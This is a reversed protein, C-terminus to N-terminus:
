KVYHLRAVSFIIAIETGHDKKSEVTIKAGLAEALIKVLPLGLGVSEVKESNKNEITGYKSFALEIDKESMGFGQDQVILYLEHNNVKATMKIVTNEPSYKISNSLLNNFIQVLRRSDSIVNPLNDEIDIEIIVKQKLAKNQNQKLVKLFISNIDIIKNSVKFKGRETRMEDILDDIFELLELGSQHINSIYDLYKDPLKGFLQSKMIESGTVVFSLPTKLEHATYALFDSKAKSAAIAIERAEEARKRLMTERKYIFVILLVSVIGLITVEIIRSTIEKWLGQQIIEKNYYMLLIFPYQSIKSLYYNNGQFLNRAESHIKNSELFNNNKNIIQDITKKPLHDISSSLVINHKDDILIFEVGETKTASLLKETLKQVDFGITM